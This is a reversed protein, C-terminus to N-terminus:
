KMREMDTDSIFMKGDHEYADVAEIFLRDHIVIAMMVRKRPSDSPFRGPDDFALFENTLEQQDDENVGRNLGWEIFEGDTMNARAAAVDWLRWGFTTKEDRTM